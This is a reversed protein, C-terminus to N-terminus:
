GGVMRGVMSPNAEKLGTPVPLPNGRRTLVAFMAETGGLDVHIPPEGQPPIWAGVRPDNDAVVKASTADESAGFFGQYVWDNLYESNEDIM